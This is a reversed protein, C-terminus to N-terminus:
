LDTWYVIRGCNSCTTLNKEAKASNVTAPSVKMNCGRCVQGELAVVAADGRNKFIRDYIALMDEDQKAAIEARQGEAETLQAQLNSSRTKMLVLEEDVRKQTAALAEQASKLEQTLSEAKEMLELQSDELKCVEAQYREVENGLARFEENKRTEFQQVKLRSVTDQRTKIQLELSKMAVENEQFGAKAKTVAANDDALKLKAREEEQPLRKLEKRLKAIFQDKDQVILLKSVQPLMLTNTIEPSDERIRRM